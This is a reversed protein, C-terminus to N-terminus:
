PTVCILHGKAVDDGIFARKNPEVAGVKGVRAEQRQNDLNLPHRQCLLLRLPVVTLFELVDLCIALPCLLAHPVLGRETETMEIQICKNPTSLKRRESM